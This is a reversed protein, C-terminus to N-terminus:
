PRQRGLRDVGHRDPRPELTSAAGPLVLVTVGHVQLYTILDGVLPRCIFISSMGRESLARCLTLCRMVHGSGITLSADARFIFKM